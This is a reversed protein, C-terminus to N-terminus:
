QINSLVDSNLSNVTQVIGACAIGRFFRGGGGGTAWPRRPREFAGTVRGGRGARRLGARRLGAEEALRLERSGEQSGGGALLFTFHAVPVAVPM